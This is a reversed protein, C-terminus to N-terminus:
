NGRKGADGLMGARLATFRRLRLATMSANPGTQKKEYEEATTGWYFSIWGDAFPRSQKIFATTTDISASLPFIEEIVM